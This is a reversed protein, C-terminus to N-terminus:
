VVNGGGGGGVVSRMRGILVKLSNVSLLLSWHEARRAWLM